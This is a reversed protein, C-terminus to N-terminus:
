FPEDDAWKDRNEVNWKEVLELPFDEMFRSPGYIIDGSYSKPNLMPYTLYLEDKARTLARRVNFM